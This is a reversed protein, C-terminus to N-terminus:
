VNQIEKVRKDIAAKNKEYYDPWYNEQGLALSQAVTEILQTNETRQTVTSMVGSWLELPIHKIRQFQDPPLNVHGMAKDSRLFKSFDWTHVWIPKQDDVTTMAIDHWKIYNEIGRKIESHEYMERQKFYGRLADASLTEVKRLTKSTNWLMALSGVLNWYETPTLSQPPVQELAELRKRIEHTLGSEHVALASLKTPVFQSNRQKKKKARKNTLREMLLVALRPDSKSLTKVVDPSSGDESSLTIQLPQKQSKHISFMVSDYDPNTLIYKLLSQM